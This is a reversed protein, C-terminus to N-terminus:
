KKLIADLSVTLCLSVIVVLSFFFMKRAWLKDASVKAFASPDNTKASLGKLGLGLWALGLGLAVALYSSGTYGFVTLLLAAIIFGFIYFLMNIKTFYVGKKAPLVPLAAATYDNLRYIAIAYFHPMQWAVLIMFLIIAGLDLGNTVATYGVVPPTAGAISGVLPGHVSRHKLPTYLAVYVFFGLAALGVTLLNTYASLILFGLLGLVVGYILANKKSVLGTVLARNKTREMRADINRDLYNNFVCASAVVLSIGLLTALFLGFNVQGRSALLFGAVTTLVNGYIIGPKALQYYKRIM